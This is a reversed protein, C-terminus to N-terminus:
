NNDEMEKTLAEAIDITTELQSLYSLYVTGELAVQPDTIAKGDTDYGYTERNFLTFCLAVSAAIGTVTWAIKRVTGRLGHRVAPAYEMESAESLGCIMVKVGRLSDPINRAHTFYERLIEEEQASTEADFYKECLEYIRNIDYEM